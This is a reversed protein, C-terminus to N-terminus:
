FSRGNINASSVLCAADDAILVKSHVHVLGSGFATGRDPAFAKESESAPAPKALSFFGVRDRLRRRVYDIARAQLWEGHRHAAHKDGEFAVEEPANPLVVIVQLDPAQRAREVIWRAARQYRFFQSEIYLLREASFILKRHAAKLEQIYPKPGVAFPNPDRRSITRLVQVRATGDSLRAPLAPPQEIPDLPELILKREGGTMWEAAIERYRPMEMNWQRRFHEACDAVAPGELRCSIDHWTRDARQRHRKDDWRRENVDLGGLIAVKDDVVAFKQHYTSPWMRPPPGSRYRLRGDALRHHRWLGPRVAILQELNEGSEGLERLVKGIAWRIPLRLLQRLGWGIEGVHQIIVMEFGDLKDKPLQEAMERLTQYTGWSLSHLDHAMIPEFDTLLLRVVVGREVAHRIIATWDALGLALAEPSRAKTNPDFIRFALHVSREAGLVLRELDPYMDAAEILPTVKCGDRVPFPQEDPTGAAGSVPFEGPGLFISDIGRAPTGGPTVTPRDSGPTFASASTSGIATM